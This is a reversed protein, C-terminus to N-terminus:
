FCKQLSLTLLVKPSVLKLLKYKRKNFFTGPPNSGQVKLRLFNKLRAPKIVPTAICGNNLSLGCIYIKLGAESIPFEVEDEESFWVRCGHSESKFNKM